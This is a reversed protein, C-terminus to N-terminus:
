VTSLVIDLLLGVTKKAVRSVIHCGLKVHPEGKCYEPEAVLWVRSEPAIQRLGIGGSFYTQAKVIQYLASEDGTWAQQNKEGEKIRTSLQGIATAGNDSLRLRLGPQDLANGEEDRFAQSSRRFKRFNNRFNSRIVEDAIEEVVRLVLKGDTTVL